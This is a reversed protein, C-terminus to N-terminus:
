YLYLFHPEPDSIYQYPVIRNPVTRDQVSGRAALPFQYNWPGAIYLDM